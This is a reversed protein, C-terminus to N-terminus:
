PVAPIAEALRLQAALASLRRDREGRAAGEAGRRLRRRPDVNFEAPLRLVKTGLRLHVPVPGPHEVVLERLREVLTETLSGLPM